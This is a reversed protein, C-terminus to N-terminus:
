RRPDSSQSLRADRFLTISNTLRCVASFQLGYVATPLHRIASRTTEGAAQRRGGTLLLDKVITYLKLGVPCTGSERDGGTFSLSRRAARAATRASSASVEDCDLACTPDVV